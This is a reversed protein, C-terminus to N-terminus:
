GMKITDDKAEEQDHQYEMYLVEKMSIHERVSTAKVTKAAHV